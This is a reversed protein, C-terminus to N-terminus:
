EGPKVTVQHKYIQQADDVTIYGNEVDRAVLAPDRDEPKGHGGGGPMELM